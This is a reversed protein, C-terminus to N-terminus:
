KIPAKNDLILLATDNMNRCAHQDLPLNCHWKGINVLPLNILDSIPHVSSPKLFYCEQKLEGGHM